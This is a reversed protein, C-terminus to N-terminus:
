SFTGFYVVESTERYHRFIQHDYFRLHQLIFNQRLTQYNGNFTAM